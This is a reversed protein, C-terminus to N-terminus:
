KMSITTIMRLFMNKLDQLAYWGLKQLKSTDLDMYLEPPYIGGSNKTEDVVVEVSHSFKSKIIPLNAVVEAMEKISCYTDENAANYAEGNKGLLLVTLMAAVADATYLYAHETGGRTFLVIPGGSMADKAFQAFVRNESDSIGIGFTQALRIVKVPVNYESSYSACLSEILRKVEPYSSRPSMTDISTAHLENIKERTQIGGYVEMSSLFLFSEVKKSKALELLETAGQLNMLITEVPKEVFFRSATPSAGHIIYNIPEEISPIHLLDGKIFQIPAGDALQKSFRNEAATIDRVLALIRLSVGKYISLYSLLSVLNFGLLGTAGTILITKNKLKDWPIYSMNSVSELDEKFFDNGIWM